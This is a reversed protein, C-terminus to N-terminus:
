YFFRMGTGPKADELVLGIRREGKTLRREGGKGAEGLRWGAAELRASYDSLVRSPSDSALLLVWRRGDNASGYDILSAPLHLPLDKPFGGPLVGSFGAKPPAAQIDDETSVELAPGVDVTELEGDDTSPEGCGVLLLGLLLM